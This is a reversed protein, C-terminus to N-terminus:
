PRAATSASRPRRREAAGRVEVRLEGLSLGSILPQGPRVTEGVQVHREIVIGSYPARIVTYDVQEAPERLAPAPRMWRRARPTAARRPRTSSPRAGGAQARLHRRHARLRGRGRARRGRGRWSRGARPAAGVAARRRHLAGGGRRGARLRQRRVAARARARRDAGVAHGPQGGRRRRGLGARARASERAVVLTELPPTAAPAAKGAPAEGGCAGLALAAALVLLLARSM